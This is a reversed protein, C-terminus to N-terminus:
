HLYLPTEIASLFNLPKIKPGVCIHPLLYDLHTFCLKTGYEASSTSPTLRCSTLEVKAGDTECWEMRDTMKMDHLKLDTPKLEGNSAANARAYNPSRSCAITVVDGTLLWQM